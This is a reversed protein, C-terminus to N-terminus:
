VQYLGRGVRRVDRNATLRELATRVSNVSGNTNERGLAQNVEGARLPSKSKALVAVISQSLGPTRVQKESATKESTAKASTAKASATKASATKASAAKVSTAKASTSAGTSKGARGTAQQPKETKRAKKPEATAKGAKAGQRPKSESAQRPAPVAEPQHASAQDEVAPQPQPQVAAIDANEEPLASEPLASVPLASVPDASPVPAGVLAQLSNLAVQGAELRETVSALEKELEQKRGQLQPLETQLVEITSAISSLTTTAV